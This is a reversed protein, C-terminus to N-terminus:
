VSPPASALASALRRVNSDPDDALRRLDDLIAYRDEVRDLAALATERVIPDPHELLEHARRGAASIELQYVAHLAAATVSESIPRELMRAIVPRPDSWAEAPQIEGESLIDLFPSQLRQPLVNHLLELIQSRNERSGRTFSAHLAMMDLETMRVDLLVFLDHIHCKLLHALARRLMQTGPASGLERLDAIRAMAEEAERAFLPEIEEVPDRRSRRRRLLLVYAQFLAARDEPGIRRSMRALLPLAGPNGLRAMARALKKMVEARQSGSTKRLLRAVPRVADAGAAVLADSAEAALKLNGLRPVIRPILASDPHSRCAVLAAHLVEEEDSDLLPGLIASVDGGRVEALGEAAAQRDAASDSAALEELRARGEVKATGMRTNILAAAAFARVRPHSDNARARLWSEKSPIEGAAAARLITWRVEPDRHEALPLVNPLVAALYKIQEDPASDLAEQIWRKVAPERAAIAAHDSEFRASRLSGLLGSVYSSHARSAIFFWVLAGALTVAAMIRITLSQVTLALISGAVAVAFPQYLGEALARAQLRSESRIGRYLMQRATGNVTLMLTVDIAKTAYVWGASATQLVAVSAAMLAAPLLRLSVLVGGWRLIRHVLFLQLFLAAVSTYAYLHGFITALAAGSARPTFAAKFQYDVLTQVMSTIAALAAITVFQDNRHLQRASRANAALLPRRDFPLRADPERQHLARTALILGALLVCVVLILFPVGFSRAAPGVMLGAPLCAATGVAGILGFLRRSERADFVETAFAWFLIVPIRGSVDALLYAAAPSFVPLVDLTLYVGLNAAILTAAVIMGIRATAFRPAARVCAYSAVGTAIAGLIYMFPLPDSGLRSLFLTDGVTRAILAGAAVFMFSLAALSFRARESPEISPLLRTLTM